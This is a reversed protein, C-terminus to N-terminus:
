QYKTLIGKSQNTHALKKGVNFFSIAIKIVTYGIVYDFMMISYNNLNTLICKSQNTHALEKGVNFFSIAIKIVTYGIVYDFMM